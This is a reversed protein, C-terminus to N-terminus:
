GPRATTTSPWGRLSATPAVWASTIRATATGSTTITVPTTPRYTGGRLAITQGPKVVSVAKSLTAFPKALTGAFTDSGSPAVYFDARGVGLFAGPAAAPSAPPAASTVPRTPAQSAPPGVAVVPKVSALTLLPLHM